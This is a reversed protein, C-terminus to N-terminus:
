YREILCQHISLFLFLCKILSMLQEAGDKFVHLEKVQKQLHVVKCLM